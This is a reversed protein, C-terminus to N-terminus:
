RDDDIRLDFLGPDRDAGPPVPESTWARRPAEDSSYKLTVADDSVRAIAQGPLWLDDGLGLFGRTVQFYSREETVSESTVMQGPRTGINVDGVEGIKEGDSSYVDMGERVREMLENINAM